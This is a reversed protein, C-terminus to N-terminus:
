GSSNQQGLTTLRSSNLDISTVTPIDSPSFSSKKPSLQKKNHISTGTTKKTEESKRVTKKRPTPEKV